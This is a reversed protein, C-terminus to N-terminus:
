PRAAQPADGPARQEAKEHATRQTYLSEGTLYRLGTMWAYTDVFRVEWWPRQGDSMEIKKLKDKLNAMVKPQPDKSPLAAVLVSYKAALLQSHCYLIRGTLLVLAATLVLMAILTRRVARVPELRRRIQVICLLISFAILFKATYFWRWFAASTKEWHRVNSLIEQTHTVTLTHLDSELANPLEWFEVGPHRSWLLLLREETTHHLLSAPQITVIDIPLRWGVGLILENGAYIVLVIMFLGVAPMLKELGMSKVLPFTEADSRVKAAADRARRLLGQFVPRAIWALLGIAIAVKFLPPVVFGWLEEVASTVNNM